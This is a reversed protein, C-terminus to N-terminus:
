RFRIGDVFLNKCLVRSVVQPLSFNFWWPKLTSYSKENDFSELHNLFDTKKLNVLAMDIEACIAYISSATLTENSCKESDLIWVLWYTM